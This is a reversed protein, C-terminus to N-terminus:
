NSMHALYEERMVIVIKCPLDPTDLIAKITIILQEQEAESGLIFLEEFQDFILYVPRLHDLYLSNVMEPVTDGDEFSELTDRTNLEQVLSDNINGQRRIYIDFWDSKDFRNALGCRIISTKGTGSMGYVLILNSQYTMQYLIEVEAERGYFIDKDDKDYADLFKFPSSKQM